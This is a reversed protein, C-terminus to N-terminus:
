RESRQKERETILKLVTSAKMVLRRDGRISTFGRKEYFRVLAENAADTVLFSYSAERHLQAAVAFIEWMLGKSAGM